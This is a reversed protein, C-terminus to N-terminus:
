EKVARDKGKRNLMNKLLTNFGARKKEHDSTKQVGSFTFVDNEMGTVLLVDGAEFRYTAELDRFVSENALNGVRESAFKVAVVNIHYSRRM